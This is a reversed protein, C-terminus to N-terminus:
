GSSDSLIAEPVAGLPRYRPPHFAAFALLIVLALALLRSTIKFSRSSVDWPIAKSFVPFFAMAILIALALVSAVFSLVNHQIENGLREIIPADNRSSYAPQVRLTAGVIVGGFTLPVTPPGAYIIQISGGDNKELIDFTINVKNRSGSNMAVRLSAVDRSYKVVQVDLVPINQPLSVSIPRLVDTSRIPDKGSNWFYIRVATVNTQDLRNGKYLVSLDSVTDPDNSVIVARAPDILFTPARVSVSALYFYFGSGLALLGILLSAISIAREPVKMQCAYCAVKWNHLWFATPHTARRL